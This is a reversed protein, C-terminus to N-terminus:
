ADVPGKRGSTSPEHGRVASLAVQARHHEIPPLGCTQCVGVRTSFYTHRTEPQDVGRAARGLEFADRALEREIDDLHDTAAGPKLLALVEAERVEHM